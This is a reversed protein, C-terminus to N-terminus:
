KFTCKLIIIMWITNINRFGAEINFFCFFLGSIINKNFCYFLCHIPPHKWHKGTQTYTKETFCRTYPPRKRLNKRNVTSINYHLFVCLLHEVVDIQLFVVTPAQAVDKNLYWRVGKRNTDWLDWDGDWVKRVCTEDNFCGKHSSVYKTVWHFIDVSNVSKKIM